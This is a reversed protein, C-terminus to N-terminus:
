PERVVQYTHSSTDLLLYELRGAVCTGSNLLLQGDVEIRKAHHTHGTIVIEGKRARGYAVARRDFTDPRDSHRERRASSLDQDHDHADRHTTAAARAARRDITQTVHFGARELWGGAWVGARSLPARDREFWSLQHGHFFVLKTRGEAIHLCEPAGLVDGVIIDHNGQVLRYRPDEVLRRSLTPYADLVSALERRPAGPWLGRLTEFIDGLLVIMDAIRELEDLWSLFLHERERNRGFRDLANKAGLHLDSLVAIHM